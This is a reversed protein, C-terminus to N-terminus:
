KNDQQWLKILDMLTTAKLIDHPLRKLEEATLTKKQKLATLTKVMKEKNALDRKWISNVTRILEQEDLPPSNLQNWMRACSIVEEYSMGSKIWIGTLKALSVNRQGEKVGSFIDRAPIAASGENKIWDPLEALRVSRPPYLWTYRIGSPHLSPPAIVIGGEAKLDFHPTKRSAVPTNIKYYLHMGRSTKVTWTAPLKSRINKYADISDFDVVAIGSIVGTILAINYQEKEWWKFIDEKTPKNKETFQAWKVVPAKGVAPVVAFGLEAYKLAYKLLEQRFIGRVDQGKAKATAQNYHIQAM